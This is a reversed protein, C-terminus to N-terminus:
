NFLGEGYPIYISKVRNSLDERKDINQIIGEYLKVDQMEEIYGLYEKSIDFSNFSGDNKICHRYFYVVDAADLSNVVAKACKLFQQKTINKAFIASNFIYYVDETLIVAEILTNLDYKSDGQKIMNYIADGNKAQILSHLEEDFKFDEVEEVFEIKLEQKINHINRLAKALSTSKGQNKDKLCQITRKALLNIDEDKVFHKIEKNM